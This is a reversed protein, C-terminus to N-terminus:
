NEQENHSVAMLVEDLDGGTVTVDRFPVQSRYLAALSRDADSTRLRVTRGQVTRESVEPMAVDLLRDTNDTVLEITRGSTLAAKLEAGTGDAVVHGDAIMVIRDAYKDAEALYHTACLVTLGDDVLARVAHWFIDRTEVDMGTTPEDLFLVQPEGALAVAFRVRQAQGGSLATVRRGALDSLGTLALLEQASRGRRRHLATALRVVERVKAGDPLGAIQLMAGVRGRRVADGPDTGAIRVGGSSPSLMGLLCSIMTSKGAGNPGLLALLEGAPVVLDIGRLARVAGYSKTLERVDIVNSTTRSHTTSEHIM